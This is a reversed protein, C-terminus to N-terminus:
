IKVPMWIANSTWYFLLKASHTSKALQYLKLLPPDAILPAVGDLKQLIYFFKMCFSMCGQMCKFSTVISTKKLRWDPFYTVYLQFILSFFSNQIQCRRVPCWQGVVWCLYKQIVKSGQKCMELSLRWEKLARWQRCECRLGPNNTKGM